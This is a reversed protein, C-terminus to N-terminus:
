NDKCLKSREHNLEEVTDIEIIQERSIPHVELDIKDLLSDVIEDWFLTEFGPHKYREDVADAIAIADQQLFYSIGCMNFCDDGGKGIHTIRGSDSLTFLWDNSHGEIMKGYYCSKTHKSNLVDPDPIFLDAECIFCNGNRMIDTVAHISSINNVTKYEHNEVISLNHYKETLYNFQKGLHGVVVYIHSVQRQTLADLLTEIMPKDGVKLLPKPTTDTLPALRTGLGAAMLIAIENNM